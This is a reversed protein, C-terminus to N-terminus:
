SSSSPKRYVICYRAPADPHAANFPELAWWPRNPNAYFARQVTWAEHIAAVDQLVPVYAAACVARPLVDLNGAGVVLLGGPKLQLDLNHIAQRTATETFNGIVNLCLLLDFRGLYRAPPPQLVDGYGFRMWSQFAPKLRWCDNDPLPELYDPFTQPHYEPSAHHPNAHVLGHVALALFVYDIDFGDYELVIGRRQPDLRLLLSVAESGDAVGWSAIRYPTAPAPTVLTALLNLLPPNRFFCTINAARRSDDAFVGPGPHQKDKRSLFPIKM